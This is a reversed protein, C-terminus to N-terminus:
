LSPWLAMICSGARGGESYRAGDIQYASADAYHGVVWERLQEVRLADDGELPGINNTM